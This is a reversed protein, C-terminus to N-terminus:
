RQAFFGVPDFSLTETWEHACNACNAPIDKNIGVANLDNVAKIVAEAQDRTISVLWENIHSPDTVTVNQEIMVIKVISMSVLQFTIRSIREVSEGLIRAKTFDDLEQNSDDIAKLTRQEELERQLFMNRMQFDYPRVHIMLQDNFNVVTDSDEVYSMSDLIHQCNVEFTNEHSCRPCSRDIDYKGDNTAIKIALFLAELDPILLKKVDRVGPACNKIVNELAQGNLMADPTNLMIEDIATLGYVALEGDATVEITNADYWRNNTPLRMFLAPQRFYRKLPNDTSMPKAEIFLHLRIRQIM